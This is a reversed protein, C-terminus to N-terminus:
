SKFISNEYQTALLINDSVLNMALGRQMMEWGSIHGYLDNMLESIQNAEIDVLPDFRGMHYAGLFVGVRVLVFQDYVNM